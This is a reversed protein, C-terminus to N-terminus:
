DIEEYEEPRSAYMYYMVIGGFTILYLPLNFMLLSVIALANPGKTITCTDFSVM